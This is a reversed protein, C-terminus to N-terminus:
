KKRRYKARDYSSHTSQFAQGEKRKLMKRMHKANRPEQGPVGHRINRTQQTARSQKAKRVGPNNSMFKNIEGVRKRARSMFGSEGKSSRNVSSFKPRAKPKKPM